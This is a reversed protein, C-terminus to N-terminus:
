AMAPVLVPAPEATAGRLRKVTKRTVWSPAFGAAIEKCLVSIQPVAVEGAGQILRLHRAWREADRELTALYTQFHSPKFGSHAALSALLAETIVDRCGPELEAQPLAKIIRGILQARRRIAQRWFAEGFLAPRLTPLSELGNMVAECMLDGAEESRARRAIFPEYKEQQVFGGLAVARRRNGSLRLLQVTHLWDENYVDPFFPMDPTVRVLMAGGGVFVDQQWGIERRAHGVVSNDPYDVAAFGVALLDSEGGMVRLCHEIRAPTMSPIGPDAALASIDDDLFLVTEVRAAMAVALGLNRKPGVDNDRYLRSLHHKASDLNPKWAAPVWSM